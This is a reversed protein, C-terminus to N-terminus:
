RRWFDSAPLRHAHAPLQAGLQPHPLDSSQEPQCTGGCACLEVEQESCPRSQSWLDVILDTVWVWWQSWGVM